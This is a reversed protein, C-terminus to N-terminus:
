EYRPAYEWVIKTGDGEQTYCVVKRGRTVAFAFPGEYRGKATKSKWIDHRERDGPWGTYTVLRGGKFVAHHRGDETKSNAKWIIANAAQDRLILKGDSKFMFKCELRPLDIKVEDDEDSTFGEGDKLFVHHIEDRWADETGPEPDGVQLTATRRVAIGNRDVAVAEVRYFGEKLGKLEDDSSASWVCPGKSAEGRVRLGNVYLKVVDLGDTDSALVEVRLDTGVPFRDGDRLRAFAVDPFDGERRVTAVEQKVQKLTANWDLYHTRATLSPRYHSDLVAAYAKWHGVADELHAVAEAHADRDQRGGARFLALKAAGRMKDAYYRGLHAMSEIDLLTERLEVHDGAQSRLEPLADDAAQAYGDLTDAVQLPTLGKLRGAKGAVVAQAWGTVSLCMPDPPDDIRDLKMPGRAFHYDELTLFGSRQMCGEPAFDADTSAWVSRNLQPVIESVTEWVDRLRGADVGPFRHKLVAKWYDDGLENDYALQGWLRFRYWHKVIELQGAVEPRNSIFERGWVYGDSGMYFGPSHDLPMWRIFERVFDPSGWRHMFLDDNRLNLFVKFDGSWGDEVARKEWEQPRRSSYMHAVAYKVSADLVGGTYDKFADLVYQPESGHRRHIFRVKRGPDEKQADMIGRGYTKFIYHETSDKTGDLERRDNEGSCVGIGAIQPYTLLAQRVSKRLYDITVPNTQDQTIGHKGTAGFTFVNWSFLYIEIGRDQAHRFVRKWHAIKEDFTMKKVLEITGDEVELIGDGDTDLNRLKNNFEPRLTGDKVRYVDELVAEPYDELRVLNPYPHTSWLSLVNYRYRALDDLYAVWFGFDWITAINNQAADGTDDYSPTRADWPINFKIGRKAVFPARKKAAIPLGLRIGDAVDLGGYMAGTADTGIVEVRDPGAPRIEFAEPSAADPRVTLAVHLGDRGAEKMAAELERAAFALQPVRADHEVDAASAAPGAPAFVAAVAATWLVWRRITKM